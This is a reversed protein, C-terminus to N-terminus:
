FKAEGLQENGHECIKYNNHKLHDLNITTKLMLPSEHFGLENKTTM